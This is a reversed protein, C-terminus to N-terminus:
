KLNFQEIIKNIEEETLKLQANCTKILEAARKLKLTLEDIGIEENELDESIATLERFAEDYSKKEKNAM